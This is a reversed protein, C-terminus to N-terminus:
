TSVESSHSYTSLEQVAPCVVPPLIILRMRKAHRM